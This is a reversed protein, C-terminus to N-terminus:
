RVSKDILKNLVEAIFNLFLTDKRSDYKGEETSGLALLGPCENNRLPVLACEIIKSKKGFIFDAQNKSCPGCYIDKANYLDGFNQHASKLELHRGKPLYRTRQLFLCSM